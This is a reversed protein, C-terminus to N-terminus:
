MCLPRHFLLVVTLVAGTEAGALSPSLQRWAQGRLLLAFSLRLQAAKLLLCLIKHATRLRQRSDGVQVPKRSAATKALFAADVTEEVAERLITQQDEELDGWVLKEPAAQVLLCGVSLAVSPRCAPRGTAYRLAPGQLV